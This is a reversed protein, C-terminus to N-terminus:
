ATTSQFLVEIYFSVIKNIVLLLNKLNIKVADSLLFLLGFAYFSCIQM